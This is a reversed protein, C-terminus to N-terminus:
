CDLPSKKGSNKPAGAGRKEPARAGGEKQHGRRWEKQHGKHWKKNPNKPSYLILSLSKAGLRKLLAGSHFSFFL